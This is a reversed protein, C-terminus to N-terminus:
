ERGTNIRFNDLYDRYLQYTKEVHLDKSMSIFGKEYDTILYAVKINGLENIKKKFEAFDKEDVLIAFKNKEFIYMNSDLVASPCKDFGGSKLWLLPLIENM